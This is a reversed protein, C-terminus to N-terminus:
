EGGKNISLADELKEQTVASQYAETRYRIYPFARNKEDFSLQSGVSMCYHDVVDTIIMKYVEPLQSAREITSKLVGDTGIQDYDGLLSESSCGLGKLLSYITSLKPDAKDKELKPIHSSKLGCAEALQLQTWGRDRRLRKLNDGFSMNIELINGTPM